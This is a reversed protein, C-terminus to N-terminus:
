QYMELIRIDGNIDKHWICQFSQKKFLSEIADKTNEFGIELIIKGKPLLISKLTQSYKKYFTLGDSDDTLAKRPEYLKIHPELNQYERNSIYPPNSVILNYEKDIRQNLFDHKYFVGNKLNFKHYNKMCVQLAQESIDIGDVYSVINKLLLTIALNGSGVGIDLCKNFPGLNEAVTIITESEPRPILTSSNVFFDYECFAAEKIIYQFPKHNMRKTLFSNFQKIQNISLEKDPNLKIFAHSFLLKKELFWIIEQKSNKVKAHRLLNDAHQILHFLTKSHYNFYM